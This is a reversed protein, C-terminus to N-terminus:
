FVENELEEINEDRKSSFSFVNDYKEINDLEGKNDSEEKNLLDLFDKRNGVASELENILFKDKSRRLNMMDRLSNRSDSSAFFLNYTSKEMQKILKEKADLSVKYEEISNELIKITKAQEEFIKSLVKILREPKTHLDNVALIIDRLSPDFDGDFIADKYGKDKYHQIRARGYNDKNKYKTSWFDSSYCKFQEGKFNKYDPNNSIKKNFQWVNNYTLKSAIGGLEKIKLEIIEDVEKILDDNIEIRKRGAVTSM